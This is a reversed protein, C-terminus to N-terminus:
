QGNEIVSLKQLDEILSLGEGRNRSLTTALNGLLLELGSAFLVLISDWRHLHYTYRRNPYVAILKFSSNLQRMMELLLKRVERTGFGREHSFREVEVGLTHEAYVGSIDQVNNRSLRSDPLLILVLRRLFGMTAKAADDIAKVTNETLDEPHIAEKECHLARICLSANNLHETVKSENLRHYQTRLSVRRINASTSRAFAEIAELNTRYNAALLLPGSPL